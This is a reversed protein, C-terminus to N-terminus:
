DQSAFSAPFREAMDPRGIVPFWWVGRDTGALVIIAFMM